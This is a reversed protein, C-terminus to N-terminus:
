EMGQLASVIRKEADYISEGYKIPAELVDGLVTKILMARGYFERTISVVHEPNVSVGNGLDVLM